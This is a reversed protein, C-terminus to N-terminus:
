ANLMLLSTKKIVMSPEINWCSEILNREFTVGTLGVNTPVRKFGVQFSCEMLLLCSITSGSHYVIPRNRSILHDIAEHPVFFNNCVFVGRM